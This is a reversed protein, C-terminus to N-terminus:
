KEEALSCIMKLSSISAKRSEPLREKLYRKSDNLTKCLDKFAKGEKDNWKNCDEEEYDANEYTDIMLGIHICTDNKEECKSEYQTKLDAILREFTTEDYNFNEIKPMISECMIQEPTKTKLVSGGIFVFMSIAAIIIIIIAIIVIVLANNSKPKQEGNFNNPNYMNNQNYNNGNYNNNQNVGNNPVMVTQPTGCNPCFQLSGDIEKGCNGCYKM